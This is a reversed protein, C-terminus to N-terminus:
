RGADVHAGPATEVVIDAQADHLIPRGDTGVGIARVERRRRRWAVLEGLPAIYAEREILASVLRAYAAPAGPFGLAGTLNPHWIGVFLGQVARCQDALALADDIWADPREIGRYKSLARDMWCFPAEDIALAIDTSADWLPVVDAVGLRFGNRDAFGWTSDFAFGSAQMAAPTTSPRMRLYHQRVGRVSGGSLSALRGRQVVFEIPDSSTAFSGHLGIEHHAGVIARMFRSARIGEPRYTLDGARATAMTPTGCLVFWTSRVAHTAEVALVDRVGRWVVHRGGSALVAGLVRAMQVLRGRTALEGLRLATFVAWWDVVDLDHTLAAAWRRGNPWPALTFVRRDGSAASVAEAIRRACQSVVPARELSNGADVLRNEASPVRDYRDRSVARQEAGAGAVDRVLGLISRPMTVEGDAIRLWPATALSRVDPAAGSGDDAVHLQVASASAAGEARLVGSLDLLVDLAFREGADLPVAGPAPPALALVLDSRPRSPQLRGTADRAPTATL